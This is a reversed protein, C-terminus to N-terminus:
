WTAGGRVHEVRTVTPAGCHHCKVLLPETAVKSVPMTLSLLFELTAIVFAKDLPLRTLLGAGAMKAVVAIAQQEDTLNNAAYRSVIPPATLKHWTLTPDLAPHKEQPDANKFLNAAVQDWQAANLVITHGFRRFAASILDLPWEPAQGPVAAAQINNTISQQQLQPQGSPPQTGINKESIRSLAKYQLFAEPKVLPLSPNYSQNFDVGNMRVKTPNQQQQNSPITQYGTIPASHQQPTNVQVTQQVTYM